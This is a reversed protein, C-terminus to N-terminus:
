NSHWLLHNSIFLYINIIIMGECFDNYIILAIIRVRVTPIHMVNSNDKIYKFAFYLGLIGAFVNIFLSDENLQRLGYRDSFLHYYVPSNKRGKKREKEYM